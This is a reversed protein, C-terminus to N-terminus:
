AAMQSTCPSQTSVQESGLPVEILGPFLVSVSSLLPFYITFYQCLHYSPSYCYIFIDSRFGASYCLFIILETRNCVSKLLIIEGSNRHSFKFLLVSGLIGAEGASTIYTSSSFCRRGKEPLKDCFSLRGSSKILIKQPIKKVRSASQLWGAVNPLTNALPFWYVLKPQKSM